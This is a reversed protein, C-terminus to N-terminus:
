DAASQARRRRGDHLIQEVEHLVLGDRQILLQAVQLIRLPPEDQLMTEGNKIEQWLAAVTKADGQGWEDIPIQHRQLWDILADQTTIIAKQQDAM